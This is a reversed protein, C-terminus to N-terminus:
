NIAKTEIKIEIGTENNRKIGEQSGIEEVPQRRRQRKTLAQQRASDDAHLLREKAKPRVIRLEVPEGNCNM